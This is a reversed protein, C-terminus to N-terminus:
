LFAGYSRRIFRRWLARQFTGTHAHSFSVPVHRGPGHGPHSPLQRPCMGPMSFASDSTVFGASLVINRIHMAVGPTSGPSRLACVRGASGPRAGCHLDWRFCRRLLPPAPNSIGAGRRQDEQFPVTTDASHLTLRCDRHRHVGGPKERYGTPPQGDVNLHSFALASLCM